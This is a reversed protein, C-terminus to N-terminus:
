PRTPRLGATRARLRDIEFLVAYDETDISAANEEATDVDLARGDLPILREADVHAYAKPSPKSTPV